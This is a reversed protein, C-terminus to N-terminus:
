GDNVPLFATVVRPPLQARVLSHRGCQLRSYLREQVYNMSVAHKTEYTVEVACKNACPGSIFNSESSANLVLNASLDSNTVPIANYPPDVVTM